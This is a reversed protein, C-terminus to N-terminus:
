ELKDKCEGWINQFKFDILIYPHSGKYIDDKVKLADVLFMRSEKKRVNDYYSIIGNKVYEYFSEYVSQRNEGFFYLTLTIETPKRVVYSGQWVRMGDSDSYQETYVNVREGKDLLGDCKSYKLGVFDNELDKLTGDVLSGDKNVKQMYHKPVIKM